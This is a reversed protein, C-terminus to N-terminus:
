AASGDTGLARKMARSWSRTGLDRAIEYSLPQRSVPSLAPDKAYENRVAAEWADPTTADTFHQPCAGVDPAVSEGLLEFIDPQVHGRTPTSM